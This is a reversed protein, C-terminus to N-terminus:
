WNIIPGYFHVCRYYKVKKNSGEGLKEPLITIVEKPVPELIPPIEYKLIKNPPPLPPLLPDEKEEGEAVEAGEEEPPIEFSVKKEEEKPEEEQNIEDILNSVPEEKIEGETGQDDSKLLSEKKSLETQEEAEAIESLEKAREEEAEQEVALREAEAAEALEEEQLSLGYILQKM